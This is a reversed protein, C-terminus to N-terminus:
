ERILTEVDTKICHEFDASLEPWCITGSYDFDISNFIHKSEESNLNINVKEFM